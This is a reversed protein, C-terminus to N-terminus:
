RFNELAAVRKKLGYLAFNDAIEDIQMPEGYLKETVSDSNGIL